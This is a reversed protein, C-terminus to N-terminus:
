SSRCYEAKAGWVESTATSNQGKEIKNNLNAGFASQAGYNNKTEKYETASSFKDLHLCPLFPDFDRGTENYLLCIM